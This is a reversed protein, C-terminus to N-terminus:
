HASCIPLFGGAPAALAYAVLLEVKDVGTTWPTLVGGAKVKLPTMEDYSGEVDFQDVKLGYFSGHLFSVMPDVKGSMQDRGERKSSLCLFSKATGDAIKAKNGDKTIWQGEILSTVGPDLQLNAVRYAYEDFRSEFKIM